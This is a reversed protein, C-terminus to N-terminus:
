DKSNNKAEERKKDEIKKKERRMKKIRQKKKYHYFIIIIFMVLFGIFMKSQLVKILRGVLPVRLIMIGEIEEYKVKFADEINNNDGKTKYRKVIGTEEIDIIRHTIYQDDRLFTIVQDKKIDQEKKKSAIILDGVNINPKMSDTTIVFAKYGLIGKNDNDVKKSVLVLIINYMLVITVIFAIYQTTKTIIRNIEKRKNISDIDYKM